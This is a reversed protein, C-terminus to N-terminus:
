CWRDVVARQDRSGDAADAGYVSTFMLEEHPFEERDRGQALRSKNKAFAWAKSDIGGSPVSLTTRPTRVSFVVGSGFSWPSAM